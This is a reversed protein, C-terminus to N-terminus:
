EHTTFSWNVVWEVGCHCVIIEVGLIEIAELCADTVLVQSGDGDVMVHWFFERWAVLVRYDRGFALLFAM